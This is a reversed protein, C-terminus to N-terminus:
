PQHGEQRHRQLTRRSVPIGHSKFIALLKDRGISGAAADTLASRTTEDTERRIFICMSCGDRITRAETEAMLDDLLSVPHEM